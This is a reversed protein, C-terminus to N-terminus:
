VMRENFRKQTEAFAKTMSVDQDAPLRALAKRSRSTGLFGLAQVVAVRLTQSNSGKRRGVGFFGGSGLLGLLAIELDPDDPPQPKLRNLSAVIQVALEESCDKSLIRALANYVHPEAVGTLALCAAARKKV